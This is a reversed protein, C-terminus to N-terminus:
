EIITSNCTTHSDIIKLPSPQALSEEPFAELEDNSVRNGFVDIYVQEMPTTVIVQELQKNEM